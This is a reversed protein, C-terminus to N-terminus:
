CVTIYQKLNSESGSHTSHRWLHYTPCLSQTRTHGLSTLHRRDCTSGGLTYGHCSGRGGPSSNRYTHSSGCRVRTRYALVLYSPKNLDINM